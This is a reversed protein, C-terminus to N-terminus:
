STTKSLFEKFRLYSVKGFNEIAMLEWAPLKAAAAVMEADSLGPFKNRLCNYVRTDLELGKPPSLTSKSESLSRKIKAAEWAEIESLRWRTCGPTLVVPRPFTPDSKIWRWPTARHVGYRTAVQRDTIFTDLM